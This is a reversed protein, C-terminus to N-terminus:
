PQPNASSSALAADIAAALQETSRRRVARLNDIATSALTSGLFFLASGAMVAVVWVWGPISEPGPETSGTLLLGLGGLMACFGEIRQRRWKETHQRLGTTVLANTALERVRLDISIGLLTKGSPSDHLAAYLECDAKIRSRADRQSLWRTVPIGVWTVLATLGIGFLTM